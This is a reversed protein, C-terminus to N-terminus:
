QKNRPQAFIGHQSEASIFPINDKDVREPFDYGRVTNLDIRIEAEDDLALHKFRGLNDLGRFNETDTILFAIPFFKIVSCFATKAYNGPTIPIAFHKIIITCDYPYIWYFINIDNPIAVDTSFLLSRIEEDMVVDDINNKASLSHALIAKFLRIPKTRIYTVAPLSLTSQLFISLTKNFDNLTPDYLTGIKSNCSSCITRYKVGNQYIVKSNDERGTLNSYISRADM